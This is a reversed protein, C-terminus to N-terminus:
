GGLKKALSYTMTFENIASVVTLENMGPLLRFWNKNFNSLRRLGSSGSITQRDNDITMEENAQLGTFLFERGDDTNNVLSFSTGIAALAFTIEPYYYDDSDSDNYFNINFNQVIGNTFTYTLTKPFTWGWPADCMLNLTIGILQGGVYQETASIVICNFYYGMLDDQEIVLKKYGTRGMLWKKIIAGDGVPMFDGTGITMEIQLATNLSRGFYYPKQRRYLWKQSLNIESGASSNTISSASFNLIRLGYLESPVSDFTFSEGNFM